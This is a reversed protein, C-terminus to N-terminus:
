RWPPLTPAVMLCYVFINGICSSLLPLPYKATPRQLGLGTRGIKGKQERSGSRMRANNQLLKTPDSNNETQEFQTTEDEENFVLLNEERGILIGLKEMKIELM